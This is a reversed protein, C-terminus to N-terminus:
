GLDVQFQHKPTCSFVNWGFWPKNNFCMTRASPQCPPLSKMSVEYAKRVRDVMSVTTMLLKDGAYAFPVLSPASQMFKAVGNIVGPWEPNLIDDVFVVGGNVIVQEAFRLDSATHEATHGGDLSFLRCPGIASLVPLQHALRTSDGQWLRTSSPSRSHNHLNRMFALDNGKGSSDVNLQQEHILDIAHGAEGDRRIQDLFVYFKGHHVGVEVLSGTVNLMDHVVQVAEIAWTMTHSMWGEVHVRHRTTLSRLDALRTKYPLETHSPDYSSQAMAGPDHRAGGQQVVMFIVGCSWSPALGRSM